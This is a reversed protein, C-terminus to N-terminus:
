CKHTNNNALVMIDHIKSEILTKSTAYMTVDVNRILGMNVNEQLLMLTGGAGDSFQKDLLIECPDVDIMSM